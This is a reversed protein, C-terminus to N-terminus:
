RTCTTRYIRAMFLRGAPAVHLTEKPDTVLNSVADTIIKDSQVVSEQATSKTAVKKM